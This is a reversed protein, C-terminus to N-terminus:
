CVRCSSRPRRPPARRGRRGAELAVAEGDVRLEVDAIAVLEIHASALEVQGAAREVAAAAAEIDRMLADTLAIGALEREMRMSNASPPTSRPCGPPWGTRRTATPCNSSPAAPRMSAPRAPRCPRMRKRPPPRPPRRCRAPPPTRRPPRRRPPKWNRRDGRRARRHRGAAPATRHAGRGLRRAHCGRRRRGGGGAQAAPDARRGSRGRGAGHRAAEVAEAREGALRASTWRHAGCAPAGCRRGRRGRGRM